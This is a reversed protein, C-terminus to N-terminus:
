ARARGGRACGPVTAEHSSDSEPPPLTAMPHWAVPYRSLQSEVHTWEVCELAFVFEDEQPASRQNDGLVPFSGPKGLLRYNAVRLMEILMRQQEDWDLPRPSGTIYYPNGSEVRSCTTGRGPGFYFFKKEELHEHPLCRLRGLCEHLVADTHSAITSFSHLLHNLAVPSMNSQLYKQAYMLKLEDDSRPNSATTAGILQVYVVMENTLRKDLTNKMLDNALKTGIKAIGQAFARSTRRVADLTKLDPVEELVLLAIEVPISRLAAM